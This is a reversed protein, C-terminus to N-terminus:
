TYNTWTRSLLYALGTHGNRSNYLQETCSFLKSFMLLQEILTFIERKKKKKGRSRRFIISHFKTHTKLFYKSISISFQRLIRLYILRHKILQLFFFFFTTWQKQAKLSTFNSHPKSSFIPKESRKSKWCTSFYSFFFLLVPSLHISLM